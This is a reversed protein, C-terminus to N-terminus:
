KGLLEVIESECANRDVIGVSTAAIKGNRDILFTMPMSSLGYPKAMEDNGLVIPYNVKREAVFPNVSKWGGDDMSVGIVSFGRRRYKGEFEVLWPIEVQCGHCWTAWFNLLVVRGKYASLRVPRGRADSLIFDPALQGDKLTKVSASVQGINVGTLRSTNWLDRVGKRAAPFALTVLSAVGISAAAWIWVRGSLREHYRQESLRALAKSVNPRWDNDPSLMALREDVWNETYAEGNRDM